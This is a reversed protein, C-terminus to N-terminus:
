GFIQSYLGNLSKAIYSRQVKIAILNGTSIVRAISYGNKELKNQISQKTM